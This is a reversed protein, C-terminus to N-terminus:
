PLRRIDGRATHLLRHLVLLLKHLKQVRLRLRDAGLIGSVIRCITCRASASSPKGWAVLTNVDAAVLVSVWIPANALRTSSSSLRMFRHVAMCNSYLRITCIGVAVVPSKGACDATM